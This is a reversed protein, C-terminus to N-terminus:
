WTISMLNKLSHIFKSILIPPLNHPKKQKYFDDLWVRSLKPVNASLKSNVKSVITLLFGNKITAKPSKLAFVDLQYLLSIFEWSHKFVSVIVDWNPKCCNILSVVRRVAFEEEHM